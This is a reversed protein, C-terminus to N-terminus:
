MGFTHVVRSVQPDAAPFVQEYAGCHEREHQIRLQLIDQRTDRRWQDVKEDKKTKQPGPGGQLSATIGKLLRSEEIGPCAMQLAGKIVSMKIDYDLPSDTDFSPLENAEILWM